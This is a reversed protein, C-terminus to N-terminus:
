LKMLDDYDIPEAVPTYSASGVLCDILKNNTVINEFYNRYQPNKLRDQIENESQGDHEAYKKIASRIDEDNPTLNERKIIERYILSTKISQTVDDYWDQVIDDKSTGQEQLENIFQKESVPSYSEVFDNWRKELETDIFSQPIDISTRNRVNDLIKNFKENQIKEKANDELLGKIKARLEDMTKTDDYVDQAFEDDLEPLVLDKVTKINIQLKVSNELHESNSDKAYRTNVIQTDGAKMGEIDHEIDYLYKTSEHFIFTSNNRRTEEIPDDNDDLEVMDMAVISGNGIVAGEKEVVVSNSERLEELYDDEHKKLISVKQESVEVGKYEALTFEPYVDYCVSFVFPEDLKLEPVEQLVPTSVPPKEMNQDAMIIELAKEVLNITLESKIQDGIKRLILEKPAKGKRFGPLNAQNSYKDLLKQYAVRSSEASIQVTLKHASNDLEEIDKKEIDVKLTNREEKTM